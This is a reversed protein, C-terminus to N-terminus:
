NFSAVISSHLVSAHLVDDCFIGKIETVSGNAIRTPNYKLRYIYHSSKQTLIFHNRVFHASHRVTKSNKKRIVVMIQRKSHIIEFHIRGNEATKKIEDIKYKLQLM